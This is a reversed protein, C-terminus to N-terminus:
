KTSMRAEIMSVAKHFATEIDLESTDLLLADASPHLPAVAREQDREDRARLDALVGELSVPEGRAQLEAFRRRARVESDAFVFFKVDANPCVVTGIDRGDLIAGSPAAAYQRQFELMEARVEPVAAVVSAAEGIEGSRM